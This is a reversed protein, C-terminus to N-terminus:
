KVIQQSCGAFFPHKLAKAAGIRDGSEYVLLKSVLNRAKETAYPILDSWLKPPFDFFTIKGFDPLQSTEPWSESTPTGLKEFISSVLRLESGLDGANFFPEHIPHLCEALV